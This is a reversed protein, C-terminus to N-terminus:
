KLVRNAFRMIKYILYWWKSIVVDFTGPYDIQEGGFGKKFRTVGAWKHKPSDDPAIGWFDYYKFSDKKADTIAQWQLLHPAMVERHKNSSAGHLYDATNGFFCMINAAIYEGDYKALYLKTIGKEGFFKLMKKYYDKSHGRFQDRSTTESLIKHFIEIKEPDTSVEIKVGKKEALRINYRTKPKMETLLQEKSKTLDLMLTSPPQVSKSKKLKQNTTKKIELPEIRIFIANEKKALEKAKRIFGDGVKDPGNPCYLYSKGFPLSNKIFLNKELRFAHKGLEKQFNEWEKSQLFNDTSM